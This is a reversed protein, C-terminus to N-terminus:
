RLHEVDRGSDCGFGCYTIGNSGATYIGKYPAYLRSPGRVLNIDFRSPFVSGSVPHTHFAYGNGPVYVHKPGGIYVKGYSYGGDVRDIMTGLELQYKKSIPYLNAKLEKAANHRGEKGAFVRDTSLTGDRFM